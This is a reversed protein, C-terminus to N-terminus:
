HPNSTFIKQQDYKKYQDWGMRLIWSHTVDVASKFSLLESRFSAGWNWHSELSTRLRPHWKQLLRFMFGGVPQQSDAELGAELMGSLRHLHAEDFDWSYGLDVVATPALRQSELFMTRQAGIDLGWSLPQFYSDIAQSNQMSLLRISGLESQDLSHALAKVELVKLETWTTKGEEDLISRFAPRVTFSSLAEGNRFIMGAGILTSDASELPGPPAAATVATKTDAEGRQAREKSLEFQRGQYKKFDEGQLLATYTQLFELEQISLEHLSKTKLNDSKPLLSQQSEFQTRLSPRFHTEAILSTTQHLTKVADLPIAWTERDNALRLGPKAVELLKLLQFACNDDLFYYDFYSGELELVHFLLREVEQPSLNLKYEWLDRGELNVYEKIMQHYPAMGFTGPFYGLLGYWAYLAGSTDKTRAAFNIGYDILDLSNVNDPNHLKLFIHGFSSGASNLFASAFVLTVETSHLRKLWDESFQCSMVEAAPIKLRRVFFERRALYKCQAKERKSKDGVFMKQYTEILELEPSEDGKSSIFFPGRIKSKYGRRTRVYHNLHIWEEDQSLAQLTALSFSPSTAM